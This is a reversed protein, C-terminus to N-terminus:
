IEWLAAVRKHYKVSSYISMFYIGSLAFVPFPPAQFLEGLCSTSSILASGISYVLLPPLNPFRPQHPPTLLLHPYPTQLPLHARTRTRPAWLPGPFHTRSVRFNLPTQRLPHGHSFSSMFTVNTPSAHPLSALKPVHTRPALNVTLM